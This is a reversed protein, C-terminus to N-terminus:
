RHQMHMRSDHTSSDHISSDHISADGQVSPLLEPPGARARGTVQMGLVARSVIVSVVEGDARCSDLTAGDLEAARAAQECPYGAIAGSAVDAAALAASEAAAQVGHKLSIAGCLVLLMTAVCVAGAAVAVALVSGAGRDDAAWRM